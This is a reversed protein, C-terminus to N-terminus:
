TALPLRPIGAVNLGVIGGTTKLLTDFGQPDGIQGFLKLTGGSGPAVFGKTAKQEGVLPDLRRDFELEIPVTEPIRPDVNTTATILADIRPPNGEFSVGLAKADESVFRNAELTVPWIERPPLEKGDLRILFRLGNELPFAAGSSAAATPPDAPPSPPAMPAPSFDLVLRRLDGSLVSNPDNRVAFAKPGLVTRWTDSVPDNRQQVEVSVSEAPAAAPFELIPVLSLPEDTRPPLSLIEPADSLINSRDTAAAFRIRWRDEGIEPIVRVRQIALPFQDADVLAVIVSEEGTLDGRFRVTPQPDVAEMPLDGSQVRQEALFVDIPNSAHGTRLSIHGREPFSHLSLAAGRPGSSAVVSDSDSLTGGLTRALLPEGTESPPLKIPLARWADRLNIPDGALSNADAYLGLLVRVDDEGDAAQAGKRSERKTEALARIATGLEARRLAIKGADDDAASALFEGWVRNFRASRETASEGTAEGPEGSKFVQRTWFGQWTGAQWHPSESSSSGSSRSFQGKQLAARLQQRRDANLGPLGAFQLQGDLDAWSPEAVLDAIANAVALPLAEVAALTERLRSEILERNATPAKADALENLLAALRREGLVLKSLDSGVESADDINASTWAADNRSQLTGWDSDPSTADSALANLDESLQQLLLYRNDEASLRPERERVSALWAALQPLQEDLRQQLRRANSIATASQQLRRLASDARRLQREAEEADGALLLWREAAATAILGEALDSRCTALSVPDDLGVRGFGDCMRMVRAALAAKGADSETWSKSASALRQITRLELSLEASPFLSAVRGLAAWDSSSEANSGKAVAWDLATTLSERDALRDRIAQENPIPMIPPSKMAEDLLAALDPPAAPPAPGEAPKEGGAPPNPKSASRVPISSLFPRHWTGGFSKELNMTDATAAIHVVQGEAEDLLKVAADVLGIRLRLEAALLRSQFEQWEMPALIDAPSSSAALRDREQWLQVLRREAAVAPLEKPTKSAADGGAAVKGNAKSNKSAPVDAQESSKREEPRKTVAGVLFSGEGGFKTVTQHVGRHTTAWQDVKQRVYAFLEDATIRGDRNGNVVDDATGTARRSRDVGDGRLGSVVYHSFVSRGLENPETTQDPPADTSDADKATKPVPEPLDTIRWSTEGPGSALIVCLNTLSQDKLESKLQAAFDPALIGQSWSMTAPGPDILMLVRADSEEAAASLSQIWESAPIVLDAGSADSVLLMAKGDRSLGLLGCYLVVTREDSPLARSIETLRDRSERLLRDSTLLNWDQTSPETVPAFLYGADEKLRILDIHNGQDAGANPPLELDRYLPDGVVALAPRSIPQYRSAFYAGVGILAALAVIATALKAIRSRRSERLSRRGARRAWEAQRGDPRRGAQWSRSGSM